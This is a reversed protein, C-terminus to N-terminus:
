DMSGGIVLFATAVARSSRQLHRYMVGRRRPAAAIACSATSAHRKQSAEAPRRAVDLLAWRSLAARMYYGERPSRLSLIRKKM